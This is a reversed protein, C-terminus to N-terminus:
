GPIKSWGHLLIFNSHIVIKNICPKTSILNSVEVDGGGGGGGGPMDRSNSKLDEGPLLSNSTRLRGHLPTNSLPPSNSDSTKFNQGNECAEQM